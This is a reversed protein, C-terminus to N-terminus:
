DTHEREEDQPFRVKEVIIKGDSLILGVYDGINWDLADLLAKPVAFSISNGVKIIKRIVMTFSINCRTNPYTL